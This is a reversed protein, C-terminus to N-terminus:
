GGARRPRSRRRRAACRRAWRSCTKRESVVSWSSAASGCSSVIEHGGFQALQEGQRCRAPREDRRDDADRDRREDGRQGSGAVALVHDGDLEADPERRGDARDHEAGPHHADLVALLRHAARERASGPRTRRRSALSPTTSPATVTTVRRGDREDGRRHERRDRGRVALRHRDAVRQLVAEGRQEVVEDVRRDGEREREHRAAHGAAHREREHEGEDDVARQARDRDDAVVRERRRDDLEHRSIEPVFSSPMESPSGFM